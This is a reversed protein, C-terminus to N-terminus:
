LAWSRAPLCLSLGAALRRQGRRAPLMGKGKEEVKHDGSLVLLYCPSDAEAGCPPEAQSESLTQKNTPLSNIDGM